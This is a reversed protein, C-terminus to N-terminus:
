SPTIRQRGQWQTAGRFATAMNQRPNTEGCSKPRPCLMVENLKAANRTTALRGPAGVFHFRGMLMM